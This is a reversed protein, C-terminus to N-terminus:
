RLRAYKDTNGQMLANIALSGFIRIHDSNQYNADDSFTYPLYAPGIWPKQVVKSPSMMHLYGETM